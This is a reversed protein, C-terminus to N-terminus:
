KWRRFLAAPQCPRWTSRSSRRSAPICEAARPLGMRRFPVGALPIGCTQRERWVRRARWYSSLLRLGRALLPVQQSFDLIQLHCEVSPGRARLYGVLRIRRALAALCCCCLADLLQLLQRLSRCSRAPSGAALDRLKLRCYAGLLGFAPQSHGLQLGCLRPQGCDIRLSRSVESRRGRTAAPRAHCPARCRGRHLPVNATAHALAQPPLM